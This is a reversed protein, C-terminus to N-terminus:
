RHNIIQISSNTGTIFSMEFFNSNSVINIIGLQNNLLNCEANAITSLENDFRFYISNTTMNMITVTQILKDFIITQEVNAALDFVKTKGIDVKNVSPNSM